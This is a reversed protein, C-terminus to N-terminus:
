PRLEVDKLDIFPITSRNPSTVVWDSAVTLLYADNFHYELIAICVATLSNFLVHVYSKIIGKGMGDAREFKNYRLHFSASDVVLKLLM